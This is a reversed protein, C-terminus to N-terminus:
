VLGISLSNCERQIKRKLVIQIHGFDTCCVFKYISINIRSQKKNKNQRKISPPPIPTNTDVQLKRLVNIVLNKVQSWRIFLM